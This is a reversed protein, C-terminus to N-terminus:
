APDETQLELIKQRLLYAVGCDTCIIEIVPM